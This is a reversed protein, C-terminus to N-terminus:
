RLVTAFTNAVQSGADVSDTVYRWVCDSTWTGHRQINQLPVNHNFAFTAGSRRFSHFTIGSRDLALTKLISKLHQRVRTDTMPVWSQSKYQFLPRDNGHPSILLLNSLAKVPCLENNLVPLHVLRVQDNFQMTKSWKVLISMGGPTSIIDEKTLHKLPDFSKVCHPTLNSLRFFGFFGLLYIAKFIQRMYTSNCQAIIAKLTDINVVTKLKVCMPASLNIARLYYRIRPDSLFDHAIDFQICKAKIAAIYNPLQTNRVNNFNLFELFSLFIPVNVPNM